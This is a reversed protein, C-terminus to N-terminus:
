GFAQALVAIMTPQDRDHTVIRILAGKGEVFLGVHEGGVADLLTLMKAVAFRCSGAGGVNAELFDEGEDAGALTLRVEGGEEDWALSAAAGYKHHAGAAAFRELARRFAGGEVTVGNLSPKPIFARYDSFTGDILRSVLRTGGAVAEIKRGDCRLTAWAGKGAIREIENVTARPIIIGAETWPTKPCAIASHHVVLMHGDSAVVVLKDEVAHFHVGSLYPRSGDACCAVAVAALNAVGVASLEWAVAEEDDVALLNPFDDAPLTPLRFRSRGNKITAGGDEAAIWVSGAMNQLLAVLRPGPLVTAGDAHVDAAVSVEIAVNLDTGAIRLSGEAASLKLHSLIPISSNREIARLATSAASALAKADLALDM